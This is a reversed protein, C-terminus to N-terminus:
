RDSDDPTMDVCQCCADAVRQLSTMMTMRSSSPMHESMVVCAGELKRRDDATMEMKGLMQGLSTEMLPMMKVDAVGCCANMMGMQEPTMMMQRHGADHSTGMMKKRM